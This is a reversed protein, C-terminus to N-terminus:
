PKSGFAHFSSPTSRARREAGEDPSVACSDDARGRRARFFAAFFFAAFFVRRRLPHNGGGNDEADAGRCRGALQGCRPRASGSPAWARLRDLANDILVETARRWREIDGRAEAFAVPIADRLQETLRKTDGVHRMRVAAESRWARM